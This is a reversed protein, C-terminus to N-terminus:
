SPATSCTRLSPAPRGSVWTPRCVVDARRAKLGQSRMIREIRYVGCAVGEALLDHWVRKAGYTRGSGIFSARVKILLAEDIRSRESPPRKLWAYFRWALCRAGRM